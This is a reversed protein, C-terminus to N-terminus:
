ISSRILTEGLVDEVLKVPDNFNLQDINNGSSKKM